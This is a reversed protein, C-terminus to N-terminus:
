PEVKSLSHEPVDCPHSAAEPGGSPDAGDRSYPVPATRPLSVATSRSPSVQGIPFEREQAAAM